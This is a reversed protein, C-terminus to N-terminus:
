DSEEQGMADRYKLAAKRLAAEPDLNNAMAWSILSLLQDGLANENAEINHAPHEPTSLENKSARYILKSALSLAPQGSPVGDHAKKRSKEKRKIEEWNELVESSSNVETDSFVHPHRSILKEIVGKAVDDVSFPKERDEEAIRSHFYVQLLIDGLEERMDDRNGTEVAEIFEYAEELLYNLLSQHSQESDWPCGGPSRLKDMVQALRALNEYAM